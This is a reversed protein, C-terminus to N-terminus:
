NVMSTLDVVRVEVEFSVDTEVDKTFVPFGYQVEVGDHNSELVEEEFGVGIIREVFTRGGGRKRGEICVSSSMTPPYLRRLIQPLVQRPERHIDLSRHPTPDHTILLVRINSRSPLTM